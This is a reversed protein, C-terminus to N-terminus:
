KNDLLKLLTENIKILRSNESKLQNILKKYGEERQYLNEVFGYAEQNNIQNITKSGELLEQPEVELIEAINLLRKINIKTSTFNM